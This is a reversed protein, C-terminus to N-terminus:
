NIHNNSKMAQGRERTYTPPRPQRSCTRWATRGRRWGTPSIRGCQWDSCFVAHYFLFFLCCIKIPVFFLWSCLVFFWVFFFRKIPVFYLSLLSFYFLKIPVCFCFLVISFTLRFLGYFLVFFLPRFFFSCCSSSLIAEDSCCLFLWSKVPFSAMVPRGGGGTLCGTWEEGSPTATMM